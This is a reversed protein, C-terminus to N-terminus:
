DDDGIGKKRPKIVESSVHPMPITMKELILKEGYSDQITAVVRFGQQGFANLIGLLQDHQGLPEEGAFWRHSDDQELIIFQFTM